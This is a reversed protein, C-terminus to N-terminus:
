KILGRTSRTASKGIKTYISTTYLYTVDNARKIDSRNSLAMNRVQNEILKDQTNMRSIIIYVFCWSNSLWAKLRSIRADMHRVHNEILQDQANMRTILQINFADQANLRAILSAIVPDKVATTQSQMSTDLYFEDWAVCADGGHCARRWLRMHGYWAESM